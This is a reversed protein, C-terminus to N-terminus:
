DEWYQTGKTDIYGSASRERRTWVLAIGEGFPHAWTYVAALVLSGSTDIYGCKGDIEVAALGESFSEAAQFVVPIALRGSVDVYGSSGLTVTPGCHDWETLSDPIVVSLGDSCSGVQAYVPPVVFDGNVDVLGWRSELEEDASVRVAALGESYPCAEYFVAPV